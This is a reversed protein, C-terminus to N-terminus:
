YYKWVKMIDKVIAKDKDIYNQFPNSKRLNNQWNNFAMTMALNRSIKSIRRLEVLVHNFLIARDSAKMQNINGITATLGALYNVLMYSKQVFEKESEFAIIYLVPDKGVEKMIAKQNKVINNILPYADLGIKAANIATGLTSYRDQIEAYKKQLKELATKNVAENANIHLQHDRASKQKDFESQNAGILQYIGVVNTQAFGYSVIFSFSLLLVFRRM